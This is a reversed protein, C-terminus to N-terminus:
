RIGICASYLNLAAALWRRYSIGNPHTAPAPWYQKECEKCMSLGNDATVGLAVGGVDSKHAIDRSLLKLVVKPGLTSAAAKATVADRAIVERVSPIGFCAFLQKAESEDLSGDSFTPVNVTPSLSPLRWAKVGSAARLMADLAVACSEPETFAPVGQQNLLAIIHPAHPSVYAIVPKTSEPLCDRIAGAMLEPAALSSSGVIVAVADYSDSELLARIAGRLLDPQLGALTVDIPNRDLAAHDGTQLARLRGATKADPAPTEFGKLGLADGTGWASVPGGTSTSHGVRRGTCRATQIFLAARIDLLDSFTEAPQYGTRKFL